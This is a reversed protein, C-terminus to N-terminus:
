LLFRIHRGMFGSWAIMNNGMHMGTALHLGSCEKAIGFTLGVITTYIVKPILLYMNGCSLAADLFHALGFLVATFFVAAVKGFFRSSFLETFVRKLKEQLFGRFFAEELIPTIVILYSSSFIVDRIGPKKFSFVTICFADLIRKSIGSFLFPLSFGMMMGLCLQGAETRFFRDVKRALHCICPLISFDFSSFNRRSIPHVVM